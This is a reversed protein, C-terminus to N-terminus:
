RILALRTTATYVGAKLRCFYIGSAVAKGRNDTGDWAATHPGKGYTGDLLTRV